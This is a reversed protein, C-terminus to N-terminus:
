GQIEVFISVDANKQFFSPFMIEEGVEKSNGKVYLFTFVNRFIKFTIAFPLMLLFFVKSVKKVVFDNCCPKLRGHCGENPVALICGLYSKSM